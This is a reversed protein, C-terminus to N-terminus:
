IVAIADNMDPFPSQLPWPGTVVRLLKVEQSLPHDEGSDPHKDHMPTHQTPSASYAGAPKTHRDSTSIQSTASVHVPVLVRQGEIRKRVTYM